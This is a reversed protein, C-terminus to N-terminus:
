SALRRLQAPALHWLLAAGGTDWDIELALVGCKKLRIELCDVSGCLLRAVLQSLMPEHGVCVVTRGQAASLRECLPGLDTALLEPWTELTLAVPRRRLTTIKDAPAAPVRALEARLITATQLTRVAPSAALRDLRGLQALLGRCALRTKQRGEPTLPRAADPGEFLNRDVAPGHRMLLLLM